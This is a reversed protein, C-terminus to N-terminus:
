GPVRDFLSRYHRGLFAAPGPRGLVRDVAFADIASAILGAVPPAEALLGIANSVAFRVIRGARSQSVEALKPRIEAFRSAIEADTQGDLTHVWARFEHVDDDDRLRLLRDADIRFGADVDDITPMGAITVLRDLRREYTDPDHTAMAVALRRDFLKAERERFGTVGDLSRM